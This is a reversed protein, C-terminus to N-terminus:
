KIFESCLYGPLNNWPLVFDRALAGFCRVTSTQTRITSMRLALTTLVATLTARWRVTNQTSQTYHSFAMRPPNGPGCLHHDTCHVSLSITSLLSGRGEVSQQLPGVWWGALRGAIVVRVTHHIRGEGNRAVCTYDSLDSQRIRNIRLETGDNVVQGCNIPCCLKHYIIGQSLQDPHRPRRTQVM